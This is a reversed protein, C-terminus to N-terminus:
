STLKCFNASSHRPKGFSTMPLIPLKKLIYHQRLNGVIASTQRVIDNTLFISEEFCSTASTQRLNGVNASPYWLYFLYERWFMINGFIASSQRRNGVKASRYWLYSLYNIRFMINGFIASSQRRKGFLTMPLFPVKKLVFHQRLNGFIASSQRFM